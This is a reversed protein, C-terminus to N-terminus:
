DSLFPPNNAFPIVSVKATKEKYPYPTGRDITKHTTSFRSEGEQLTTLGHDRLYALIVRKKFNYNKTFDSFASVYLYYYNEDTYGWEEVSIPTDKTVDFHEPKTEFESYLDILINEAAPTATKKRLYPLVDDVCLYMGDGYLQQSLHDALLIFAGILAQKPEIDLSILRDSYLDLRTSISEKEKEFIALFQKGAFGYNSSVTRYIDSLTEADAINDTLHIDMIRNLAGDNAYDGTIPEEGNTIISNSFYKVQRQDGNRNLRGRTIGECLNYILNQFDKTGNTIATQLEDICAPLNNLFAVNTEISNTTSNFTLIYSQPNAWISACLLLLVTKGGSGKGWM